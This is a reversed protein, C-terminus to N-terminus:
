DGFLVARRVNNITAKVYASSLKIDNLQSIKLTRPRVSNRRKICLRMINNTLPTRERTRHMQISAIDNSRTKNGNRKIKKKERWNTSDRRTTFM